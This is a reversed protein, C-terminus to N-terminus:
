TPNEKVADIIAALNVPRGCHCKWRHDRLSQLTQADTTLRALADHEASWGVTLKKRVTYHDEAVQGSPKLRALEAELAAIHARVSQSVREHCWGDVYRLVQALEEPSLKRPTTM